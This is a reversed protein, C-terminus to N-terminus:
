AHGVVAPEGSTVAASEGGAALSDVIREADQAAREIWANMAVGFYSSGSVSLGPLRALGEEISALREAHGV